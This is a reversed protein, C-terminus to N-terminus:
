KKFDIAQSMSNTSPKFKCEADISFNRPHGEISQSLREFV